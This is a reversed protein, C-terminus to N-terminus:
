EAKRAYRTRWENLEDLMARELDVAACMMSCGGVGGCQDRDPHQLDHEAELVGWRDALQDFRLGYMSAM